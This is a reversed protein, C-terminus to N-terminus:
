VATDPTLEDKSLLRGANRVLCTLVEFSKPRLKIEREGERLCGRGLDLTFGGFRYIEASVTSM